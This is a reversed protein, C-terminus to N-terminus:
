GKGIEANLIQGYATGFAGINSGFVKNTAVAVAAALVAIGGLLNFIGHADM